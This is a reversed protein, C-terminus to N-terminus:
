KANKSKPPHSRSNWLPRFPKPLRSSRNQYGTQGTKPVPRAL